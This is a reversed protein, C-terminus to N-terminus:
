FKSTKISDVFYNDYKGGYGHAIIKLPLDPNYGHPPTRKALDLEVRKM